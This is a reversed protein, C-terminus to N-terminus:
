SMQRTLGEDPPSRCPLHQGSLASHLSIGSGRELHKLLVNIYGVLIDCTGASRCLKYVTFITSKFDVTQKLLSSSRVLVDM